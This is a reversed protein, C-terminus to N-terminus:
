SNLSVFKWKSQLVVEVFVVVFVLLAIVNGLVNHQGKLAVPLLHLALPLLETGRQAGVELAQAQLATHLRLHLLRLPRSRGQSAMLFRMLGNYNNLRARRNKLIRGCANL